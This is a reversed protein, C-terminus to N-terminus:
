FLSSSMTPFTSLTRIVAVAAASRAVPAARACAKGLRVTVSTTGKAAPPGVSM